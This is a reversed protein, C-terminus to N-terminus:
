NQFSTSQNFCFRNPCCGTSVQGRENQGIWMSKSFSTLQSKVKGTLCDKGHATKFNNIMRMVYIHHLNDFSVVDRVFALESVLRVALRQFKRVGGTELVRGISPIYSMFAIVKTLAEIEQKILDTVFQDM